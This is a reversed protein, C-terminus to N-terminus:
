NATFDSPQPEFNNERKERKEFDILQHTGAILM